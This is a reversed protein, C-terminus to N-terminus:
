KSAKRKTGWHTESPNSVDNGPVHTLAQRSVCGRKLLTQVVPCGCQRERGMLPQRNSTDQGDLRLFNTVVATCESHVIMDHGSTVKGDAGSTRQRRLSKPNPTHTNTKNQNSKIQQEVSPM